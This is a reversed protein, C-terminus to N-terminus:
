APSLLHVPSSAFVCTCDNHPIRFNNLSESNDSVDSSDFNEILSPRLASCTLQVQTASSTIAVSNPSARIVIQHSFTLMRATVNHSGLRFGSHDDDLYMLTRGSTM